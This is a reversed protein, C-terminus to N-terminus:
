ALIEEFDIELKECLDSLVKMARDRAYHCEITYGKYSEPYFFPKGNPHTPPQMNTVIFRTNSSGWPLPVRKIYGKDVLFRLVDVFLTRVTTNDFVKGDVKVAIRGSVRGKGDDIDSTSFDISGSARLADYISDFVDRYKDYLSLALQKEEDTIAMKIGRYRTRLNKVYQVIFPKTKENLKPHDLLPLLLKDNLLQYDVCYWRSDGSTSGPDKGLGPVVYILLNVDNPHNSLLWDAYKASQESNPKSDIKFEFVVNLTGSAGNESTFRATLFVDFRGIGLVSIEAPTNENPSVQIESLEAIPLTKALFM